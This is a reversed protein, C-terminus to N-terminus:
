LPLKTYAVSFKKRLNKELSEFEALFNQDNRMFSKIEKLKKLSRSTQMIAKPWNKLKIEVDSSNSYLICIIKM